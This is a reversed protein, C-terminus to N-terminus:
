WKYLNYTPVNVTSGRRGDWLTVTNVLCIFYSQRTTQSYYYKATKMKFEATVIINSRSRNNSSNNDRSYNPTPTSLHNGKIAYKDSNAIITLKNSSEMVEKRTPYSKPTYQKSHREDFATCIEDVLKDSSSFCAM